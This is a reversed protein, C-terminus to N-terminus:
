RLVQEESIVSEEVVVETVAVSSKPIPASAMRVTPAKSKKRFSRKKPRARAEAIGAAATSRVGGLGPSMEIEEDDEDEDLGLSMEIEEDDEDEDLGLIMELEEDDEYEDIKDEVITAAEARWDKMTRKSSMKESHVANMTSNHKM